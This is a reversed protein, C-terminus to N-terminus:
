TEMGVPRLMEMNELLALDRPSASAGLIAQVATSAHRFSEALSCGTALMGSFLATM